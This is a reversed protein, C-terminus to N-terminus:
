GRITEIAGRARSGLDGRPHAKSVAELAPLAATNGINGLATACVWPVTEHVEPDTMAACLIDIAEPAELQCLACIAEDRVMRDRTPDPAIALAVEVSRPEDWYGIARLALLAGAAVTGTAVIEHITDYTAKRHAVLRAVIEDETM